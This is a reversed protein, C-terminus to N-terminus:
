QRVRRGLQVVLRQAGDLSSISRGRTGTSACISRWPMVTSGLTELDEGLLQLPVEIVERPLDVLQRALDEGDPRGLLQRLDQELLQLRGMRRRVFVPKEVSASQWRAPRPGDAAALTRSCRLREFSFPVYASVSGNSMLGAVPRMWVVNLWSTAAVPRRLECSGFRIFMGMRESSPRRM